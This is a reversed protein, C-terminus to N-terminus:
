DSMGGCILQCRSHDVEGLQSSGADLCSGIDDRPDDQVPRASAKTKKIEQSKLM